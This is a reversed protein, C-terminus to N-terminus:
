ELRKAVWFGRPTDLPGTVGGAPLLFLESELAPELIGRAIRGADVTSGPDGHKVAERFDKKALEAVAKAIALADARPRDIDGALEAGRYKVLVVGFRM